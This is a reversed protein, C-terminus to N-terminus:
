SGSSIEGGTSHQYKHLWEDSEKWNGCTGGELDFSPNEPSGWLIGASGRRLNVSISVIESLESCGDSDLHALELGQWSM